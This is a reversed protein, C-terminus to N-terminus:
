KAATMECDIQIAIDERKGLLENNTNVWQNYVDPNKRNVDQGAEVSEDYQRDAELYQNELDDLTKRDSEFEFRLNRRSATESRLGENTQQLAWVGDHVPDENPLKLWFGLTTLGRDSFISQPSKPTDSTQSLCFIPLALILVACVSSLRPGASPM